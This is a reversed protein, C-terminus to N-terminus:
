WKIVCSYTGGNAAVNSLITNRKFTIAAVNPLYIYIKSAHVGTKTPRKEKKKTRQYLKGTTASINKKTTPIITEIM